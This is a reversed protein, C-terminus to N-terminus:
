LDLVMVMIKQAMANCYVANFEFMEAPSYSKEISTRLMSRARNLRVKVNSETIQLLDATESVNLGNIERLSFIMRYDEPIEALAQEIVRGLERSQISRETENHASSFMPQTNEQIERSIEKKYSLKQKKHYCNNLMIRIIWTKFGSRGQFQSLNKYAAIFTEQMLDQSDEHNYNYARGVKYLDANFRRVILEYASKEGSLVKVVVEADTIEKTSDM